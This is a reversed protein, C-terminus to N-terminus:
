EFLCDALDPLSNKWNVLTANPQSVRWHHYVILANDFDANIFDRALHRCYNFLTLYDTPNGSSCDAIKQTLRRMIAIMIYDNSKANADEVIAVNKLALIDLATYALAVLGTLIVSLEGVQIAHFTLSGAEMLSSQSSIVEMDSLESDGHRKCRRYNLTSMLELYANM